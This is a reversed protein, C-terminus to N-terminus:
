PSVYMDYLLKLMDQYQTSRASMELLDTRKSSLQVKAKLLAAKTKDVQKQSHSISGTIQRYTGISANFGQYHENVTSQLAREIIANTERFNSLDKARGLSSTDLMDLALTVPHFNDDLTERWDDEVIERVHTLPDQSTGNRRVRVGLGNARRTTNSRTWAVDDEEDDDDDDDFIRRNQRNM